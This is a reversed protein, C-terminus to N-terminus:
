VTLSRAIEDFSAPVSIVVELNELLAQPHASNWANRIHLLLRSSADVPSMKEIDPPGGWPLIPATRDVGAHSLWSKASTILRSPIKSGQWRAFEGVIQSPSPDWPLAYAEVPLEDRHQLYLASPLLAQLRVDSPRIAQLIPFDLIPADPGRSREIYAVASNSTGLDIGVLYDSVGYKGIGRRKWPCQTGAELPRVRGEGFM